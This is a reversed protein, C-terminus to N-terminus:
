QAVGWAAFRLRPPPLSYRQLLVQYREWPMPKGRTRRSLWKRWLLTLEYRLRRLAWRNEHLGYYNDHGILARVLWAHQWAVPQHRHRQLVQRLRRLTRSLRSSATKRKVAWGKRTRSWFHTFGLFDFGNSGTTRDDDDRRPRFEVLRTKTPHLRLGYEGLRRALLEQVRRADVENSLVLVVDDAYRILFGRGSLQPKVEYEFWKDLVEHLYINALLPSIVGGQPTGHKPRQLQGNELVGAKLWKHITRRLVGDRVRLDLFGKLLKHDLSDFFREIDVDLVWGGGMETLGRRLANLAGHASRGPRFGWSCDLFDQEYVAELVMQVARQLIKDEYTPIGIARTSGGDGKPIQARRVPPARYLGSKFRELLSQLNGELDRSYEKATRGDVGVAGSKRTRRHAERLFKEDIHHGLTLLVRKSDEQALKAIRQLRTSIDEPVSRGTMKGELSEM